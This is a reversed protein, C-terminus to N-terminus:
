VVRCVYCKLYGSELCTASIPHDPAAGTRALIQIDRKEEAAIQGMLENLMEQTILGSCCCMVLIAGATSMQVALTLLRRYGRLAEPISSRSRAFKPPDLIIMEFRRGAQSLSDLHRFVDAKFFDVNSLGNVRANERALNLAAESSDVCEVQAAGGKAAHLGFGGSYCFADLVRRGNAWKKILLHNDSQDLYFGTKQGEQLNVLFSVGNEDIRLDSPPAEGWLLCDHLELGELKGIGRETRLYIGRPKVLEVLEDVLMQKRQALPLTTFQVTLWGAYEDITCGSLFDSESFVLRCGREPGRLGLADRFAIANQLRKRFFNRDLPEDPSWSYLRVRIKSQSNFFGRAIFHGANSVLEVEAGDVPEGEVREIAGAFVWPHRAFFPQARKPKLIVRSLTM